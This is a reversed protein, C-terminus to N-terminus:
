AADQQTRIWDNAQQAVAMVRGLDDRDFYKTYRYVGAADKYSRTFSVSHFTRPTGQIVRQRAFISASVNDQVIVKVPARKEDSAIVKVLARKEDSATTEETRSADQLQKKAM